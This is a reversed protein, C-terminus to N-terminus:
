GLCSDFSVEVNKYLKLETPARIPAMVGPSYYDSLKIVADETGASGLMPGANIKTIELKIANNILYVNGMEASFKDNLSVREFDSAPV